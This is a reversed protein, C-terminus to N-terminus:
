DTEKSKGNKGGEFLKKLAEYEDRYILKHEIDDWRERKIDYFEMVIEVLDDTVKIARKRYIEFEEIM